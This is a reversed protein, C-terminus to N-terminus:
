RENTTDKRGRVDGPPQEVFSQIGSVLAEALAQRYEDRGLREAEGANSLCSVEALIAPMETAVLVVFPAPKVGRDPMMPDTKRIRRLVADQVARALRKSEDRRADV